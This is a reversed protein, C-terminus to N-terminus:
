DWCTWAKAMAFYSRQRYLGLKLVVSNFCVFLVLPLCFLPLFLRTVSKPLTATRHQARNVAARLQMLRMAHGASKSMYSLLYALPRCHPDGKPSGTGEM